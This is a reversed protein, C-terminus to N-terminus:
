FNHGEKFNGLWECLYEFEANEALILSPKYTLSIDRKPHKIGV